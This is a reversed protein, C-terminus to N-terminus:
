LDRGILDMASIVDDLPLQGPASGADGLTAFTACSGFVQGALRSISGLPGMSMTILPVPVQEACQATAALLAAVDGPSRPMVAIKLVDAGLSAMANLRDTIEAASPTGDFDHNSAVVPVRAARAAEVCRKAAPNLYQVDVMDITGSACADSILDRYEDSSPHWDSGEHKTRPTFLLPREGIIERIRAAMAVMQNLDDRREYRDVRWEVMEARSAAVRKAAAVLGAEHADTLPIIVKPRGVGLTVGRVQLVSGKVAASM